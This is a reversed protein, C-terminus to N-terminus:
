PAVGVTSLGETEDFGVALNMSQVAGGATGKTLNDMAGIVVLLGADADVAVQLTVANAGLVSGTQPLTGEPLLHVFPEDAYAKEYVARAQAADVTTRATCTALIGRPMPALVPTFSVSVPTGAVASLNQAIEPTHRHAGAIGYARASGMVESGLLGVDLKRGAGSAGSVAVVNVIPEVIGAAVAPALALSSVTPYCGPVAIRTAGRLADRAGPLEPLGYPWSGAHESGYYKTWAAADRLRFDAGCDIIVTSEPLEAALAASQGHPLGLFVVDHGALEAATTSVLVRDALPLLHPQHAGLPTGANSGATLAGIELRGSRYRPHGLLLRLVEGGAYGSAGAVAIRLPADSDAM